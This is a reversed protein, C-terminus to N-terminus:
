GNMESSIMKSTFVPTYKINEVQPTLEQQLIYHPIPNQDKESGFLDISM